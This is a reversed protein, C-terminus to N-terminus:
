AEPEQPSSPPRPTRRRRGRAGDLAAIHALCHHLADKLSRKTIVDTLEVDIRALTQAVDPSIGCVVCHAGLMAAARVMKVFHDATATDVVDVGTIDIIACRAQREVITQLLRETMEVSRQTDVIGVIPLALVDAWIELVPTSLDAIALQQREITDLKAQLERATDEIQQTYQENARLVEGLDAALTRLMTEVEGFADDAPPLKANISKMELEGVAIMSLVDLLASVRPADVSITALETM